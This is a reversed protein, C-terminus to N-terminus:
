WHFFIIFLIIIGMKEITFQFCRTVFLESFVKQNRTKSWTFIFCVARLEYESSETGVGIPKWKCTIMNKFLKFNLVQL